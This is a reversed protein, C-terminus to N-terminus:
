FVSVLVSVCVCVCVCSEAPAATRQEAMGSRQPARLSKWEIFEIAHYGGRYFFFASGATLLSRDCIRLASCAGSQCRKRNLCECTCGTVSKALPGTRGLDHAQGGGGVSVFFPVLCIISRM